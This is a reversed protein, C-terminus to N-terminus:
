SREYSLLIVRAEHPILSKSIKLSPQPELKGVGMEKLFKDVSALKIKSAPLGYHMPVVIGPELLSVVEAATAANLGEGGGVPVLAVNVNGLAEIETQSLVRQLNGLHAVTVGNYDFVYLINRKEAARKGYGDTPVATIFVGGIEYEGPGDILHYKGKVASLFHHDAADHSVSVIDSRLKLAQFGTKQHDYPDTVVSAMGRETLRFCSHGYWTVEM